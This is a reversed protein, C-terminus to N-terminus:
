VVAPAPAKFSQVLAIAEEVVEEAKVLLALVAELKAELGDDALDFKVKFGALLAAKEASDLDALELKADAASFSGMAVLEDFLASVLMLKQIASGPEKVVKFIVNAGEGGLNVLKELNQTGPM